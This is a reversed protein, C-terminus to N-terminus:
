VVILCLMLVPEFSTVNSCSLVNFFSTSWSLFGVNFHEVIELLEAKRSVVKRGTLLGWIYFMITFFADKVIM